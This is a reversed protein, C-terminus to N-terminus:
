LKFHELSRKTFHGPVSVLKAQAVVEVYFKRIYTAKTPKGPPPFRSPKEIPFVDTSSKKNGKKLVRKKVIYM